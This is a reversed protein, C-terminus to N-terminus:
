ITPMRALRGAGFRSRPLAPGGGPSRCRRSATGSTRQRPAGARLIPATGPAQMRGAPATSGHGATMRALRGAGFRSRPLAPGCPSPRTTTASHAGSQRVLRTQEDIINGDADRRLPM